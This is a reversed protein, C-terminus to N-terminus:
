LVLARMTYMTWRPLRWLNSTKTKIKTKIQYFKACKTPHVTTKYQDYNIEIDDKVEEEKESYYSLCFTYIYQCVSLYESLSTSLSDSLGVSPYTGCPPYSICNMHKLFYISHM